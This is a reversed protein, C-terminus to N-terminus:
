CSKVHFRQLRGGEKRGERGGEVGGMQTGVVMGEERMLTLSPNNRCSAGILGDKRVMCPAFLKLISDTVSLDVYGHWIQWSRDQRRPKKPPVSLCVPLCVCLYAVAKYLLYVFSDEITVRLGSHEDYEEISSQSVDSIM